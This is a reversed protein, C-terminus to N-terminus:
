AEALRRKRHEALNATETPPLDVISLLRAECLELRRHKEDQFSYQNYVKDLGPRSHAIVLERVLDQVPLASPHARMTRRLDHIMRSAVGSLKDEAM